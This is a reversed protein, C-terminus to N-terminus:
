KMNYKFREQYDPYKKMIKHSVPYKEIFWVLFKTPNITEERIQRRTNNKYSLDFKLNDVINLFDNADIQHANKYKSSQYNIYGVNLPNLYYYERGLVGAESAMTAGETILFSANDIITHIYEPKINLIYKTFFPDVFQSEMSIYVNIKSSLKKVIAKKQNITLTNKANIDHNASYAIYRVLAYPKELDLDDFYYNNKNDSYLYLQEVYANFYIQKNGMDKKFYFPTLICSALPKYLLHNLTNHETDDLIISPKNLLSATIACPSSAFGLFLDVRKNYSFLLIKIIAKILYKFSLFINRKEPRKNRTIHNIKFANLLDIIIKQKRNTVLIEHGKSKMIKIFNKFYHVHAPHNIDILIKM